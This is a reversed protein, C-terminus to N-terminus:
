DAKFRPCSIVHYTPIGKSNKKYNNPIYRKIADWGPVPKLYLSWECGNTGEGNPVAHQCGWCLTGSCNTKKPKNAKIGDYLESLREVLADTSANKFESYM